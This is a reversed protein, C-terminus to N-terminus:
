IQFKSLRILDICESKAVSTQTRARVAALLLAVVVLLASLHVRLNVNRPMATGLRAKGDMCNYGSHKSEFIRGHAM